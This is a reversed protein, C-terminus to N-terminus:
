ASAEKGLRNRTGCRIDFQTGVQEGIELASAIQLTLNNALQPCLPLTRKLCCAHATPSCASSRRDPLLFHDLNKLVCFPNEPLFSPRHLGNTSTAARGRAVEPDISLM